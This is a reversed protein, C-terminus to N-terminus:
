HLTKYDVNGNMNNLIIRTNFLVILSSIFDVSILCGQFINILFFM